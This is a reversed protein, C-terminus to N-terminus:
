ARGADRKNRAATGRTGQRGTRAKRRAGAGAEAAEAVATAAQGHSEVAVTKETPERGVEAIKEPQEGSRRM